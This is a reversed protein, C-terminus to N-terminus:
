PRVSRVIVGICLGSLSQLAYFPRLDRELWVEFDDSLFVGQTRCYARLESVEGIPWALTDLNPSGTFRALFLTLM